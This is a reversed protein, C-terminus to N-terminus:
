RWGGAEGPSERQRAPRRDAGLAIEDVGARRCGSLVRAVAAFSVGRDAQVLVIAGAGSARRLSMWEALSDADTFALEGAVIQGGAKVVVELREGKQEVAHAALPLRVPAGVIVPTAVMFIILLVIMVDAMPTVNIDAIVSRRGGAVAMAM